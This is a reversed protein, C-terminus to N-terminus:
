RIVGCEAMASPIGAPAVVPAGGSDLWPFGVHVVLGDCLQGGRQAGALDSAAFQCLMEELADAAEVALEVGHDGDGLFLGQGLGVGGVRADGGALGSRQGTDRQQM